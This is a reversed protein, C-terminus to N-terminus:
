GFVKKLIDTVRAKPDNRILKEEQALKYFLGNLTKDTVYKALDTEVKQVFPIKNYTSIIDTWYKTLKVNDLIKQVEPKFANFLKNSTKNKFYGTAADDPGNLIKRADAFTMGKIADVFIPTAKKVANEAGRNMNLIFDDVKKNLGIERLKEEVIKVEEPFPIKLASNGYFGNEKGLFNVANTTGVNLAEKLGAIIENTSLPASTPIELTRLIECASFVFFFTFFLLTIKKM